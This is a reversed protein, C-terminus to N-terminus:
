CGFAIVSMQFIYVLTGPIVSVQVNDLFGSFDVGGISLRTYNEELQNKSCVVAFSINAVGRANYNVNLTSCDIFEFNEYVVTSTSCSLAM